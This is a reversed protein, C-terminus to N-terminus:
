ALEPGTAAASALVAGTVSWCSCLPGLVEWGTGAGVGAWRVCGQREEPDRDQERMDAERGENEKGRPWQM